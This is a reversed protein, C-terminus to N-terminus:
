SPFEVSDFDCGDMNSVLEDLADAAGSVSSGKESGQLGEPMGDYWDRMENAIEEVESRAEDFVSQAQEFRERKTKNARERELQATMGPFLGEIKKRM